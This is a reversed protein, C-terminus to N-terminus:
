PLSRSLNTSWTSFIAKVFSLLYQGIQQPGLYFLFPSFNVREAQSILERQKLQFMWRRKGEHM